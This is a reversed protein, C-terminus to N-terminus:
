KIRVSKKAQEFDAATLIQGRSNSGSTYDQSFPKTVLVICAKCDNFPDEQCTHLNNKITNKM